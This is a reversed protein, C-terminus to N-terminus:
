RRPRPRAAGAPPGRRHRPGRRLRRRAHPGVRRPLPQPGGRRDPHRHAPDVIPQLVVDPGGAAMVPELRDRIEAQRQEQRIQPEIVLAAADALVEVLALDRPFVEPDTVLGFACFTGYVTGDSLVVPVSVHGRIQPLDAPHLRMAEPFDRVDPM